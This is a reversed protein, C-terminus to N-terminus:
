TKPATTLAARPTSSSLTLTSSISVLDVGIQKAMSRLMAIVASAKNERGVAEELQRIDRSTATSKPSYTLKDSMPASYFM